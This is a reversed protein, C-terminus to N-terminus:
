NTIAACRVFKMSSYYTLFAGLLIMVSGLLIGTLSLIYPITLTGAGMCCGIVTFTSSQTTGPKFSKKVTSSADSLKYMNCLPESVFSNFSSGGKSGLKRLRKKGAPKLIPDKDGRGEEAYDIELNVMEYQRKHKALMIDPDFAEAGTGAFSHDKLEEM